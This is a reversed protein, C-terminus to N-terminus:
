LWFILFYVVSFYSWLLIFALHVTTEFKKGQWLKKSYGFLQIVLRITWFIGFGLALRKGLKTEIIENYSTLCLLGMLFLILGIFMTHVYMIQRNILTLSKLDKAWNFYRPFVTHILSLAILLLGIIKLNLEM